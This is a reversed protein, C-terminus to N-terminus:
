LDAFNRLLKMGFKHSKEPHFQVGYINDKQIGSDYTVGYDTRLMSNAADKVHVCYSHVFYFRFEDDFGQTLPSSNSVSVLNWGMHPVKLEPREPFHFRTTEADIWGLGKLTGEESGNTLLQMGLCIGLIPTKEMLVKKDLVDRLQLADIKKMAADFHGVGPLILKTAQEIMQIDSTITAEVGLRKFMNVISGLNGLGYNVITIM